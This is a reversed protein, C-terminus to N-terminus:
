GLIAGHEAKVREGILTVWLYEVKFFRKLIKWMM